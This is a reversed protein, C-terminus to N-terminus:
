VEAADSLLVDISRAVFCEALDLNVEPKGKKM